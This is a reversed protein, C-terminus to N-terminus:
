SGAVPRRGSSAKGSGPSPTIRPCGELTCRVGLHVAAGLCPLRHGRPAVEGSRMLSRSTFASRAGGTGAPRTM